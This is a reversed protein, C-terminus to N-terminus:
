KPSIILPVECSCSALNLSLAFFISKSLLQGSLYSMLISRDLTSTYAGLNVHLNELLPHLFAGALKQALLVVDDAASNHTQQLLRDIVLLFGTRPFYM